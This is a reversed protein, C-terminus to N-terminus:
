LVPLIYSYPRNFNRYNTINKFAEAFCDATLTTMTKDERLDKTIELQFSQMRPDPHHNCWLQNMNIYNAGNYLDGPFSCYTKIGSESLNYVVFDKLASNCTKSNKSTGQGDGFIVDIDKKNYKKRVDDRVGHIWCAIGYGYFKVVTKAIGLLPFLFEEAVEDIMHTYNNCNAKENSLDPKEIKKWGHNIVYNCNLMDALTETFIDTNFDDGKYGHPAILILPSPAYGVSVRTKAMYLEIYRPM